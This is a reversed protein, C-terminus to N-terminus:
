PLKSLWSGGVCGNWEGGMARFESLRRNSYRHLTHTWMDTKGSGIFGDEFEFKLIRSGRVEFGSGRGLSPDMEIIGVGCVM